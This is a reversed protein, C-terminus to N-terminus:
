VLAMIMFLCEKSQKWKKHQNQVSPFDFVHVECHKNSVVVIAEGVTVQENSVFSYLWAASKCKDHYPQRGPWLKSVSLDGVCAVVALCGITARVSAVAGSSWVAMKRRWFRRPTHQRTTTFSLQLLSQRHGLDTQRHTFLASPADRTDFQVATAEQWHSIDMAEQLAAYELDQHEHIPGVTSIKCCLPQKLDRACLNELHRYFGQQWSSNHIQSVIQCWLRSETQPLRDACNALIGGM